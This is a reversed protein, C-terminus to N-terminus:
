SAPRPPHTAANPGAGNQTRRRMEDRVGGFNLYSETRNYIGVMLSSLESDTMDRFAKQQNM